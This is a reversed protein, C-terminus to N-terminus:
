RKVNKRGRKGGEGRHSGGQEWTDEGRVQEGAKRGEEECRATETKLTSDYAVGTM